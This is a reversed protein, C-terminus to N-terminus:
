WDRIDDSWRLAIGHDAQTVGLMVTDDNIATREDYVFTRWCNWSEKNDVRGRYATTHNEVRTAAKRLYKLRRLKVDNV